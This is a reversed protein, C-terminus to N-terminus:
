TNQATRKGIDKNVAFDAFIELCDLQADLNSSMVVTRGGNEPGDAELHGTTWLNLAANLIQLQMSAISAITKKTTM